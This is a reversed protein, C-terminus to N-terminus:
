YKLPGRRGIPAPEGAAEAALAEFGELSPLSRRGKVTERVWLRWDTAGEKEALRYLRQLREQQAAELVRLPGATDDVARRVVEARSVGMVIRLADVRDLQTRDLIGMFQIKSM